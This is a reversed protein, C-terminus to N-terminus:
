KQRMRKPMRHFMYITIATAILTISSTVTAVIQLKRLHASTIAPPYLSPSPTMAPFSSTSTTTSM